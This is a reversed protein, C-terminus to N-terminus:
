NQEKVDKINKVGKPASWNHNKILILIKKSCSIGKNPSKIWKERDSGEMLPCKELSISPLMRGAQQAPVLVSLYTIIVM